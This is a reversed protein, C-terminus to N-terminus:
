DEEERVDLADGSQKATEEESATSARKRSEIEDSEYAKYQTKNCILTITETLQVPSEEQSHAETLKAKAETLADIAANIVPLGGTCIIRTSIKDAIKFSKDNTGNGGGNRKTRSVNSHQLMIAGAFASGM